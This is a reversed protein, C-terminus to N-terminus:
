ISSIKKTWLRIKDWNRYDHMKSPDKGQKEVEKKISRNVMKYLLGHDAKPDYVSGFLGTAIPDNALNKKAVDDLYKKQGEAISKEDNAAGCTVFLAVKKKQFYM